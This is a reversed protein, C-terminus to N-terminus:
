GVLLTNILCFQSVSLLALGQMGNKRIIMALAIQRARAVKECFEWPQFQKHLAFICTCSASLVTTYRNQQSRGSNAQLGAPSQAAGTSLKSQNAKAGFAIKGSTPADSLAQFSNQSHGIRGFM